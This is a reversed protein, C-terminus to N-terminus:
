AIMWRAPSNDAPRTRSAVPVNYVASSRRQASPYTSSTRSSITFPRTRREYPSVGGPAPASRASAARIASAARSTVSRPRPSRAPPAARFALGAHGRQLPPAPPQQAGIGGPVPALPALLHEAGQQLGARGPRFHGETRSARARAIPPRRTRPQVQDSDISHTAAPATM